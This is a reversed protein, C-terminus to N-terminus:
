RATENSGLRAAPARSVPFDLPQLSEASQAILSPADDNCLSKRRSDRFAMM